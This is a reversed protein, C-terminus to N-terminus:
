EPFLFNQNRFEQNSVHEFIKKSCQKKTELIKLENPCSKNKPAWTVM